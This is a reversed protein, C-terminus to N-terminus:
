HPKIQITKPLAAEMKPIVITLVGDKFKADVKETNVEVPLEFSREFKGYLREKRHTKETNTEADKRREGTLRLTKGTLSLGIDQETLGPLDAVFRYEKETEEIDMVPSFANLMEAAESTGWDAFLDLGLDRTVPGISTNRFFPNYFSLAHRM